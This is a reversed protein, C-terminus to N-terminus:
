LNKKNTIKNIEEILRNANAASLFHGYTYIDRVLNGLIARIKTIDDIKKRKM